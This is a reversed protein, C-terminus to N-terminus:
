LYHHLIVPPLQTYSSSYQRHEDEEGETVWYNPLGTSSLACLGGLHNGELALVGPTRLLHDQDVPMRNM